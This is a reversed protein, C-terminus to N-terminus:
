CGSILMKVKKAMSKGEWLLPYIDSYMENQDIKVTGQDDKSLDQYSWSDQM